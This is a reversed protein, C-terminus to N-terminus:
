HSISRKAEKHAEFTETFEHHGDPRAVFYLYPVDAPAVSAALSAAGPSAIPGPPLGPHRYTNYPSEIDLDKYHVREVHHGLAYQVTPDAQLPMRRRLRNLYVAAIMPRESDVRAEKEVISALTVVEHRTLGLSDLHGTWEPRWAHEFERVMTGIAARATTGDPFTYTDPFLYGELTETGDPAGVEGLLARDRVAAAVSDSPVGLSRTLAPEIEAVEWGEPVTVTHVLGQGQTLADLTSGWSSGRPLVYTGPKIARDEHTLKAYIRFLRPSTIVGASALSEAAARFTAGPPIMVRTPASTRGMCAVGLAALPLAALPLAASPSRWRM